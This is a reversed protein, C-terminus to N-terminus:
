FRSARPATNVTIPTNPNVDPDFSVEVNTGQVLMSLVLSLPLQNAKIRVEQQLWKPAKDQQNAHGSRATQDLIARQWTTDREKLARRGDAKPSTPMPKTTM